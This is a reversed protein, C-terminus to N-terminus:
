EKRLKITTEIDFLALLSDNTKIECTNKIIRTQRKLEHLIGEQFFLKCASKLNNKNIKYNKYIIEFAIEEETQKKRKILTQKYSSKKPLSKKVTM